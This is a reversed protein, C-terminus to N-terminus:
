KAVPIPYNLTRPQTEPASNQKKTKPPRLIHIRQNSKESTDFKKSPHNQIKPDGDAINNKHGWAFGPALHIQLAESQKKIRSERDPDPIVRNTINKNSQESTKSPHHHIDFPRSFDGPAGSALIKGGLCGGCKLM